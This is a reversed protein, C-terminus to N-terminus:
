HHAAVTIQVFFISFFACGLKKLGFEHHAPRVRGLQNLNQAVQRSIQCTKARCGAQAVRNACRRGSSLAGGPRFRAVAAVREHIRTAVRPLYAIDILHPLIREYQRDARGTQGGHLINKSPIKSPISRFKGL